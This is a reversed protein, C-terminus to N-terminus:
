PLEYWKVNDLRDMEKSIVEMEEHSTAEFIQVRIKKYKSIFSISRIAQLIWFPIGLIMLLILFSM